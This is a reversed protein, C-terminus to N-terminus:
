EAFLLQTFELKQKKFIAPTVARTTLCMLGPIAPPGGAGLMGLILIQVHLIAPTNM